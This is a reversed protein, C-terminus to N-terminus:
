SQEYRQLSLREIEPFAEFGIGSCHTDPRTRTLAVAKGDKRLVRVKASVSKHIPFLPNEIYANVCYSMVPEGSFEGDPEPASIKANIIKAKIVSISGFVMTDLVEKAILTRVNESRMDNANLQLAPPTACGALLCPMLFIWPRLPAPYIM